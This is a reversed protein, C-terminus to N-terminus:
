RSDAGEALITEPAGSTSADAKHVGSRKGTLATGAIAGCLSFAALAIM